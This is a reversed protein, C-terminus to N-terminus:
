VRDDRVALGMKKDFGWVAIRLRLRAFIVKKLTVEHRLPLKATTEMRFLPAGELPSGAQM